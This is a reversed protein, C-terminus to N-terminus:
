SACKSRETYKQVIQIITYSALLISATVMIFLKLNFSDGIGFASMLYDVFKSSEPGDLIAVTGLELLWAVLSLILLIVGKGKLANSIPNYIREIKSIMSLRNLTKATARSRLYYHKLRICVYPLSVYVAMVLVLFLTLLTVVLEFDEHTTVLLVLVISLLALIDFFRDIVIYVTSKSYSNLHYGYCYIRYFDGLKFPILISVLTTKCFQKVYLKPPFRSESLIFYLRVAKVLNVLISAVAIIVIEQIGFSFSSKLYNFYLLIAAVTLIVLNVTLYVAKSRNMIDKTQIYSIM